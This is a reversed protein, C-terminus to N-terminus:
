KRGGCSLKIDAPVTRLLIEGYTPGHPHYLPCSYPRAGRPIGATILTAHRWFLRMHPPPWIDPPKTDSEWIWGKDTVRWM